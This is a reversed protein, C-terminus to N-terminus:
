AISRAANEIRRNLYRLTSPLALEIAMARVLQQRFRWGQGCAVLLNRGELEAAAEDFEVSGLELASRLQGRDVRHGIVAAAQLVRLARASVDIEALLADYLPDPVASDPEALIQEVYRPIGDGRERAAIRVSAPAEPALVTALEDVEADPMPHLDIVSVPSDAPLSTGTRATIVSLIRGRSRSMVADLVDRSAPDFWHVDEAILVGADDGFRKLLRDALTAPDADATVDEILHRVPYLHVPAPLASGRLRLVPMGSNQALLEAEAALRSKGIGPAGRLLLGPVTLRHALAHSWCRELRAREATRGVLRHRRDAGPRHRAGLVRHCGLARRLEFESDVLAAVADSVVVTGPDARGSIAQTLGVEGGYVDDQATDLYVLGRHVGVRAAIPFGFRREVLASLRAVADTAYLGMTVARQTDDGHTVPHGFRVFLGDGKVFCIHGGFAVAAHTILQRFAGVVTRYTEPEVRCSLATSDVLDIFLMSLRRNQGGIDASLQDELGIGLLSPAEM